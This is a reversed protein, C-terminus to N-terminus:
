YRHLTEDGYRVWNKLYALQFQVVVAVVLIIKFVSKKSYILYRNHSKLWKKFVNEKHRYPDTQHILLQIQNFSFTFCSFKLQIPM